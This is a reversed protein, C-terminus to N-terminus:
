QLNFSFRKTKGERLMEINVAPQTRAKQFVQFAKQQDTLQQGNVTCIIDGDRLGLEAAMPIDKLGTIRLGEVQGDISYPEIVAKRFLEQMSDIKTQGESSASQVPVDMKIGENIQSVDQNFSKQDPVTINGGHQVAYLRLMMRRGNHILIVADDKISEITSNAVTDNTRYLGIENTKTDKIVARSVAESGCITGLLMLGLEQSAERILGNASEKGLPQIQVFSSDKVGFINKEIIAQYDGTQNQRSCATKEININEDGVASSPTFVKGPRHPIIVAGVIMYGLLLVLALKSILLIKRVYLRDSGKRQAYIRCKFNISM